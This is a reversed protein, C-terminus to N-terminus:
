SGKCQTEGQDRREMGRDDAGALGGFGDRFGTNGLEGGFVPGCPSRIELARLLLADGILGGEGGLALGAL